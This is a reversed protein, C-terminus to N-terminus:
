RAAHRVCVCLKAYMHQLFETAAGSHDNCACDSAHAACLLRRRASRSAIAPLASNSSKCGAPEHDPKTARLRVCGAAPMRYVRVMYAFGFLSSAGSSM